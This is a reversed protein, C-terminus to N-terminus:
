EVEQWVVVVGAVMLASFGFGIAAVAVGASSERYKFGSYANIAAGALSTLGIALLRKKKVNM